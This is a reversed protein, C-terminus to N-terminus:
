GEIVGGGLVRDADYFVAAQGPAIAGQPTEFDVLARDRAVACVRAPAARHRSRIQVRAAVPRGACYANEFRADLFKLDTVTMRSRLLAQADGLVVENRDAVIRVVHRRPGGGLGLGKRQGITFAHHGRHVGIERGQEDVFRGPGPLREGAVAEVFAVYGEPPVFCVEQSERKDHVPLGHEKAIQRVERKTLEGIPLVLDRLIAPDVSYLFYSQDKDLDRARCLSVGADPDNRIRAYHGTSVREAGVQRAFRLLFPFKVHENCSICPSPTRGALYEDVFRRIVEEHFADSADLTQHPIGLRECVAQADRRDAATCCGHTGESPCRYLRLSLGTVRHGAQHLLLAAVSSDVGGSMAVVVDMATAM